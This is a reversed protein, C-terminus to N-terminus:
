KNQRNDVASHSKVIVVSIVYEYVEPIGSIRHRTAIGVTITGPLATIRLRRNLNYTDIEIIRLRKKVLNHTKVRELLGLLKMGGAIGGSDNNVVIAELPPVPGNKNVGFAFHSGIIGRVTLKIINKGYM